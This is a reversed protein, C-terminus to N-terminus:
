KRLSGKMIKMATKKKLNKTAKKTLNKTAKKVLNKTAKKTLTRAAKKTLNKTIKQRRKRKVEVASQLKNIQATYEQASLLEDIIHHDTTTFKILWGKEYPDKSLIDLNDYLRENVAIVEGSFPLTMDLLTELSEIEAFSIDPLIEDGVKPLDLFLLKDLKSVIYKTLGVSISKKNVLFWKHAPSYKLHAPYM